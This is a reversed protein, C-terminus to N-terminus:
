ILDYIVGDVNFDLLISGERGNVFDRVAPFSGDFIGFDIFNDGDKSVVWGVVAGAQSRDIGLSDYVENLFVHGRAHLLDNAYNQKCQLFLHNYEPKKDWSQSYEDFFRAYVSKGHVGVTQVEKTKPKGDKTKGDEVKTTESSYRLEREKDEGFEEVVRARYEAFGAGLASYAATLAANRRTLTVHSGTLAGVSVVGVILAPAYLKGLKAATRIYIYLTDKAQDEETYDHLEIDVLQKSMELNRGADEVVAELKLTARCALVTASVAGVIGVGFMLRPSNKQSQLLARGIKRSVSNPMYKM